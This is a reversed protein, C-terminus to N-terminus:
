INFMVSCTHIHARVRCKVEARLYPGEKVGQPQKKGNSCIRLPIQQDHLLHPPMNERSSWGRGGCVKYDADKPTPPFPLLM